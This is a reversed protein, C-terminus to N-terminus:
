SSAERMANLVPAVQEDFAKRVSEIKWQVRKRKEALIQDLRQTVENLVAEPDGQAELILTEMTKPAHEHSTMSNCFSCATVTNAAEVRRAIDEQAAAPLDPFRQAINLRIENLYGGQSQGIIHEWTMQRWIDFDVHPGAGCGCLQCIGASREHVKQAYGFLSQCIRHDYPSLM